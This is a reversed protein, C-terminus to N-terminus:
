SGGSGGKEDDNVNDLKYKIIQLDLPLLSRPVKLEVFDIM